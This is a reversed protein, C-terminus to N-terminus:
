LLYLCLRVLGFAVEQVSQWVLSSSIYTSKEELLELSKCHQPMKSELQAMKCFTTMQLPKVTNLVKSMCLVRGLSEFHIKM